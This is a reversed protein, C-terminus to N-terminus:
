ASFLKAKSARYRTRAGQLLVEKQALSVPIEGYIQELYTDLVSLLDVDWAEASKEPPLECARWLSPFFMADVQKEFRVIWAQARQDRLDVKGVVVGQLLALIVPKLLGHVAIFYREVRAASIEALRKRGASTQLMAGIKAPLPLVREHYGQTKGQTRCLSAAFFWSDDLIPSLAPPADWQFLLESVRRFHFGGEDLSLSTKVGKKLYLPTWIDGTYGGHGENFIRTGKTPRTRATLVTGTEILRIRRCIEIFFPHLKKRPIKELGDWPLLWVLGVEGRYGHEKRLAVLNELWLGVDRQFRPAWELSPVIAVCPRSSTGGNMRAVGYNGQGLVGESTQKSVLAFVWHELRPSSLRRIKVDFNKATILVDIEGPTHLPKKWETLEGEPVPPQLFAPKELDAVVLCWPEQQSDTLLLLIEGWREPKTPLLTTNTRQLGLAALQVLFAYWPHQQHAQLHYFEFKEGASLLALVSPLTHGERRGLRHLTILPESLLNHRM